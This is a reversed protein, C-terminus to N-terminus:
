DIPVRIEGSMLKPLLTNRLNILKDNELELIHKKDFANKFIDSYKNLIEKTPLILKMDNIDPKSLGLIVSGTAQAKLREISRSLNMYIIGVYLNKKSEISAVGRGLCYEKDAFTINGITARICFVLDNKKCVRTEKTTYKTAKILGGYFDAAGNLLPTGEGIANYSESKPSLGMTLNGIDQLKVVEWGKPIMGRESEVMEGGSSKYPKGDENPFEFDIFWQKFIAQAMEELKKNIKNNTEIKEDLDSLIKTIAKQESYEPLNVKVKKLTSQTILPQSSGIRLNYLNENILSYYMYTNDFGTKAKALIANDSIWCKDKYLNVNGCYAGVRGIIINEGETNFDNCYDVIGNGGYVPIKGAEKPRKKGNFFDLVESLEYQKFSM